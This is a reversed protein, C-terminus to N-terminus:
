ILAQTPQLDLNSETAIICYAFVFLRTDTFMCPVFQNLWSDRGLTGM